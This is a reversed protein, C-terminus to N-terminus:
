SLFVVALKAGTFLYPGASPFIIYTASAAPTLQYAKATKWYVSPVRDLGNLTNIIMAVVAYLFGIVTKPISNLGFLVIFAPLLRLGSSLLLNRAASRCDPTRSPFRAVLLRGRIWRPSGFYPRHESGDAHAIDSAVGRTTFLNLMAPLMESPPIMTFRRVLGFRCALELSVLAAVILIIRIKTARRIQM